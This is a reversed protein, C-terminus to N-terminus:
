RQVLQPQAKARVGALRGIAEVIRYPSAVYALPPFRGGRPLRAFDKLVHQVGLREPWLAQATGTAETKGRRYLAPMGAARRHTTARYLADTYAISYGAEHVRRAWHKDESAVISEDFRHKEFVDRRYTACHNSLGWWPNGAEPWTWARHVGQILRGDAAVASGCTAAVSSDEHLRLAKELHLPGALECHSSLVLVVQAAGAAEFGVNLSRGYSFDEQRMHVVQDASGDLVLLTDDTSGSDVAIINVPVSQERLSALCRPLSGASNRTRVVAAVADHPHGVEDHMTGTTM